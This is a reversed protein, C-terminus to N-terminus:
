EWYFFMMKVKQIKRSDFNTKIKNEECKEKNLCKLM